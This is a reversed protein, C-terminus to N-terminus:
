DRDVDVYHGYALTFPGVEHGAVPDHGAPQESLKTVVFRVDHIGWRETMAHDVHAQACAVSHGHGDIGMFADSQENDWVEPHGYEPGHGSPGSTGPDSADPESAGPELLPEAGPDPAADALPPAAGTTRAALRELDDALPHYGAQRCATAYALLAPTAHPDHDLDLVFYRCDEHRSGPGSRGDTRAVRYKDYLGRDHDDTTAAM